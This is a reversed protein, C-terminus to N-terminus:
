FIDNYRIPHMYIENTLVDEPLESDDQFQELEESQLEELENQDLDETNEIIELEEIIESLEKENMYVNNESKTPEFLQPENLSFLSYDM